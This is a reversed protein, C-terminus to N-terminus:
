WESVNNVPMLPYRYVVTFIQGKLLDKVSHTTQM